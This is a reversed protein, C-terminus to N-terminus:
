SCASVVSVRSPEDRTLVSLGLRGGRSECLEQVITLVGSLFSSWYIMHGRLASMPGCLVMTELVYHLCQGGPWGGGRRLVIARTLRPQDSSQQKMTVALLNIVRSPLGNSCPGSLRESIM